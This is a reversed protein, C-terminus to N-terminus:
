ERMDESCLILVKDLEDLLKEQKKQQAILVSRKIGGLYYRQFWPGVLFAADLFGANLAVVIGLTALGGTLLFSNIGNKWDGWSAQGLGPIFISMLRANRVNRAAIKQVRKFVDRIMKHSEPQVIRMFEPAADEYRGLRFLYLGNLLHYNFRAHVSTTDMLLLEEQMLDFDSSYYYCSLIRTPLGARLSDYTNNNRAALLYTQLAKNYERTQFYLDALNPLHRIGSGDVDFYLAREYLAIAENKEGCRALSDAIHLVNNVDQAFVATSSFLVYRYLLIFFLRIRNKLSVRRGISNFM